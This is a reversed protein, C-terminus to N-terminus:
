VVEQILELLQLKLAIADKTLKKIDENFYNRYLMTFEENFNEIASERDSSYAIIGLPEYEVIVYDDEYIVNCTISGKLLITQDKYIVYDTTYVANNEASNEDMGTGGLLSVKIPNTVQLIDYATIESNANSSLEKSQFYDLKNIFEDFTITYGHIIRSDHYTCSPNNYSKYECYDVYSHTPTGLIM